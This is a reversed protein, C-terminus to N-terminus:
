EEIAKRMDLYADIAPQRDQREREAAEAEYLRFFHARDTGTIGNYRLGNMGGIGDLATWATDSIAPRKDERIARVIECWEREATVAKRARRRLEAITPFFNSEAIHELVARKLEQEGVDSLMAAYLQATERSFPHNPYAAVLPSFIRSYNM